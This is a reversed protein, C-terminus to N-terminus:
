NSSVWSFQGQVMARYFAREALMVTHALDVEIFERAQRRERALEPIDYHKALLEAPLSVLRGETLLIEHDNAPEKM